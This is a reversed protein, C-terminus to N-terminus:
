QFLQNEFHYVLGVQVSHEDIRNHYQSNYVSDIKEKNYDVYNYEVKASLKESVFHEVGAGILYGEYWQTETGKNSSDTQDFKTKIKSTVYGGTLFVLTKSDFVYGLRAKLSAKEKLKTEVLFYESDVGNYKETTEDDAGYFHYNAELGLLINNDTVYNYGVLGGIKLGEPKNKNTYGNPVGEYSKETSDSDAKVAGISGGVYFGDFKRQGDDALAIQNLSILLVLTLIKKM